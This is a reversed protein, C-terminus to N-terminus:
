IDLYNSVAVSRQVNKKRQNKTYKTKTFFLDPLVRVVDVVAVRARPVDTLSTSKIAKKQKTQSKQCAAM